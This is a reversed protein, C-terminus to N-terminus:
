MSPVYSRKGSIESFRSCLTEHLNVFVKNTSNLKVESCGCKTLERAKTTRQFRCM